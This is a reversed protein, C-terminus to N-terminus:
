DYVSVTLLVCEMLCVYVSDIVCVIGSCCMIQSVCEIDSSCVGHSM